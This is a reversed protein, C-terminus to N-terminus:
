WDNYGKIFSSPFICSVDVISFGLVPRMQKWILASKDWMIKFQQSKELFADKERHWLGTLHCNLGDVVLPITMLGQPLNKLLGVM